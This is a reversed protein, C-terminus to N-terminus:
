RTLVIDYSAALGGLGNIYFYLMYDEDFTIERRNAAVSATVVGEDEVYGSPGVARLFVDYDKDNYNYVGIKQGLVLGLTIEDTDEDYDFDVTASFTADGGLGKLTLKRNYNPNSESVGVIRVSYSEATGDFGSFSSWNWTGIVSQYPIHEDDVITVDTVAQVGIKAGEASAISITFQRDDNFDFDNTAAIEVSVEKKGAPIVVTKSTIIYNKDNVAPSSSTETVDVTVRVPGNAKGVVEVPVYFLDVNEFVSMSSASMQVTVDSATNWDDDNSCAGLFLAASALLLYKTLKM